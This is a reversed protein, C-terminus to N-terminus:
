RATVFTYAVIAMCGVVATGLVLSVALRRRFSRGREQDSQMLPVVALVPLALLRLVEDDTKFSGDRYELFVIIGLGIGLGVMMGVFNLMPRNPSLPKEPLRAPDLLKFQEGIQRRELNAALNSDEKKGLLNSYLSQLTSYDRSLDVMESERAPVADIRAQYGAALDRLKKEDAQAAAIQKDFQDRESKLQEIKTLRQKEAPSVTSAADETGVPRTLMERNLQDTLEKISSQTAKVDPHSPGEGLAQQNALVSKYYALKQATTGAAAAAAPDLAPAPTVPAADAPTPTDLDALQREVVLRSSAARNISDLTAQIQMQVNNLAHLNSDVQTPLQGSYKMQYDQLQKEKELLRRHADELQSELFQSTGDTLLARDKLSESIFLSSLEDAVKMATRPDPAMYSVAFSDGGKGIDVKLDNTRMKDVVDEMIGTRREDPYLNQEEIIHELQTRSLITQEIANVRDDIRTTVTSHVYSEPVQQPVVLITAQSRYIDPLKRTVIATGASVVAFPVLLVWIRRRLIEIIDEPKYKKGPLM